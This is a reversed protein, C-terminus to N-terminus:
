ALLGCIDAAFQDDDAIRGFRGDALVERSGPNPTAVVPTGCALAELYPLGFGEYTSPSAYVWASQYLKVLAEGTIGCHSTVGSEAPGIPTVMHLQADPFAPQIVTKFEDILWGGRKRGTLAGVFVISPYRTKAMPNPRFMTLDAGNPIVHRVFPNFQSANHS